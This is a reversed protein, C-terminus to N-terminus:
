GEILELSNQFSGTLGFQDFYTWILGLSDWYTRTRGPIGLHTWTRGLSELHTAKVCCTMLGLLSAVCVSTQIYMRNCIHSIYIYIYM